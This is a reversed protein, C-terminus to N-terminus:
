RLLAGLYGTFTAQDHGLSAFFDRDTAEVDGIAANVLREGAPTAEVNVVRTDNADRHRAVLVRAELARLVQSTMMADVGMSRALDAQSVPLALDVLGALLVFQVHTLEHPRLAARQKAQWAM